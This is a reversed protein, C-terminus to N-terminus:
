CNNFSTPFFIAIQQLRPSLCISIILKSAVSYCDKACGRGIYNNYICSIYIIYGTRPRSLFENKVEDDAPHMQICGYEYIRAQDLGTDFRNLNATLALSHGESLSNRLSISLLHDLRKTSNKSFNVEFLPRTGTMEEHDLPLLSSSFERPM